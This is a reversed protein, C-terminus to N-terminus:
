PRLTSVSNTLAPAGSSIMYTLLGCMPVKRRTLITSSIRAFISRSPPSYRKLLLTTSRSMSGPLSPPWTRPTTSSLPSVMALLWTTSAMPWLARSVKSISCRRPTYMSAFGNEIPKRTSCGCDSISLQRKPGLAPWGM